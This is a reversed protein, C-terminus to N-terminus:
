QIRKWIKVAMNKPRVEEDSVYFNIHQYSDCKDSCYKGTYLLQSWVGPTIIDQYHYIHSYWNDANTINVKSLM